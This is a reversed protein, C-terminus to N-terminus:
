CRPRRHRRSTPRPTQTRRDAPDDTPEHSSPPTPGSMLRWTTRTPLADHGRGRARAAARGRHVAARGLGRRAATLDGVPRGPRASRSSPRRRARRGDRRLERLQRLHRQGVARRVDAGHAELAETLWSWGVGALMPDTVLEPDIEARAYAVCRFTGLWADNGAPDHLVVIRGSGVDEGDVTM